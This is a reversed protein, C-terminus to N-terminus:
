TPRRPKAPPKKTPPKKPPEKAAASDFGIYVVYADLDRPERPMPFSLEDEIVTFLVNTQGPPVDVKIWRLKTVFTKPEPGEQVVAFRLPVDFQGPGGAPGLILRGEVGVRVNITTGILKCERANQVFTAQYRLNMANPDAGIASVSYTSTGQRIAVTPCEYEEPLPIATGPAVPQVATQSSNSSGSGFLNTFRDGLSPSSGPRDPGGLLRDGSCATLLFGLALLVASGARWHRRQNRSLSSGTM